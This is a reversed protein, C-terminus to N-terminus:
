RVQWEIRGFLERLRTLRGEDLYPPDITKLNEQLREISRVGVCCTTIDHSLVYRLAAAPVSYPKLFDLLALQQVFQSFHM